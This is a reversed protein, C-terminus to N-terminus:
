YKILYIKAKFNEFFDSTMIKSRNQAQAVLSMQWRFFEHRPNKFKLASNRYLGEISV